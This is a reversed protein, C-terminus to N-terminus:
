QGVATTGYVPLEWSLLAAFRDAESRCAVATRRFSAAEALNGKHEAMRAKLAYKVAAAAWRDRSDELATTTM